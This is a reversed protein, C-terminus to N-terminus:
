ARPTRTTPMSRPSRRIPTATLSADPVSARGSFVISRPADSAVRDLPKVRRDRFERGFVFDPETTTPSGIRSSPEGLGCVSRTLVITASSEVDSASGTKVCSSRRDLRSASSRSDTRSFSQRFRM